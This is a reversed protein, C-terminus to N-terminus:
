TLSASQVLQASDPTDNAPPSIRTAHPTQTRIYTQGFCHHCASAMWKRLFPADQPSLEHAVNDKHGRLVPADGPNAERKRSAQASSLEDSIRSTQCPAAHSTSAAPRRKNRQSEALFVLMKLGNESAPSPGTTLAPHSMACNTTNGKATRAKRCSGQRHVGMQTGLIGRRM